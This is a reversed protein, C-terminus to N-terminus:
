YGVGTFDEDVSPWAELVKPTVIFVVENYSTQVYTSRFLYGLIPIDGLLPVKAENEFRSKSVLGGIVASKGNPVIVYSQARRSSVIPTPIPDTEAYGTVASVEVNFQLHVSDGPTVFPRIHMMVGVKSHKLSTKVNTGQIQASPYPVQTTTDIVAMGGNRVAIKPSSIIDSKRSTMLLELKASLELNDHIGGLTLLGESSGSIASGTTRTATNPFQSIINKVFSGRGTSRLTPNKGDQSVGLDLTDETSFELVRTELLIQPVYNYFLEMAQEFKELGDPETTVLVLDNKIVAKGGAIQGNWNRGQLPFSAIQDFETIRQILVRYGALMQELPTKAKKPDKGFEYVGETGKAKGLRSRGSLKLMEDLVKGTPADVYYPKTITGDPHRVIQRGFRAYLDADEFPDGSDEASEQGEQPAPAPHSEPRAVWPARRLQGVTASSQTVDVVSSMAQGSPDFVQVQVKSSQSEAGFEPLPRQSAVCAALLLLATYGLVRQIRFGRGSVGAESVGAESVGASIRQLMRLQRGPASSPKEANPVNDGNSVRIPARTM